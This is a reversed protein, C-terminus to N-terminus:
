PKVEEVDFGLWPTHSAGPDSNMAQFIWLDGAKVFRALPIRRPSWAWNALAFFPARGLLPLTAVFQSGAFLNQGDTVLESGQDDQMRLSLFAASAKLGDRPIMQWSKLRYNRPWRYRVVDGTTSPSLTVGSVGPITLIEPGRHPPVSALTAAM